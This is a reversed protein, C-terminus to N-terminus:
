AFGRPFFFSKEKEYPHHKVRGNEGLGEISIFPCLLSNNQGEILFKVADSRQLNVREFRLDRLYMELAVELLSYM